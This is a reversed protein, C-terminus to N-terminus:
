TSIGLKPLIYVQLLVWVFVVGLLILINSMKKRWLGRSLYSVSVFIGSVTHRVLIVSLVRCRQLEHQFFLSVATARAELGRM